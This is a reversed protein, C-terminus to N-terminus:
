SFKDTEQGATHDTLDVDCGSLEIQGYSSYTSVSTGSASVLRFCYNSDLDVNDTAQVAFELETFQNVELTVGSTTNGTDKVQGPM